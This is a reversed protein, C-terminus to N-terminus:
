RLSSRCQTARMHGHISHPISIKTPDLGGSAVPAAPLNTAFPGPPSLTAMNRRSFIMKCCVYPGSRHASILKEFYRFITMDAALVAHYYPAQMIRSAHDPSQISPVPSGPEWMGMYATCHANAIVLLAPMWSQAM